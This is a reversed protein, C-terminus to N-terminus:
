EAYGMRGRVTKLSEELRLIEEETETYVMFQRLLPVLGEQASLPVIRDEKGQELLVLGGL